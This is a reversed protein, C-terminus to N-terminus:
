AASAVIWIDRRTRGAQLRWRAVATHFAATGAFPTRPLRGDPWAAWPLVGHGALRARTERVDRQRAKAEAKAAREALTDPAYPVAPRERCIDYAVTRALLARCDADVRRHRGRDPTNGSLARVATDFEVELVGRGHRSPDSVDAARPQWLHDAGTLPPTIQTVAAVHSTRALDALDRDGDVGRDTVLRPLFLLERTPLTAVFWPEGFPKGALACLTVMPVDALRAPLGDFQV